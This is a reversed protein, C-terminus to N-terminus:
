PAKSGVGLGIHFTHSRTNEDGERERGDDHPESRRESGDDRISAFGGLETAIEEAIEMPSKKLEKALKLPANTSYDADINEPSPTIEPDFDLNYLNKIAEKLTEKIEQM